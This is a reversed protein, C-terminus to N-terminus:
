RETYIGVFDGFGVDSYYFSVLNDEAKFIRSNALM